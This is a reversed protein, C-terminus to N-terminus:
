GLSRTPRRRRTTGGPISADMRGGRPKRGSQKPRCASGRGCVIALAEMWNVWRVPRDAQVVPTEQDAFGWPPESQIAAVFKAFRRNTVEFKDMYFSDLVVRHIPQEDDDGEDSGMTFEGAPVLLMPAGDQGISASPLKPLATAKPVPSRNAPRRTEDAPKPPVSEPKVLVPEPKAPVHENALALGHGWSLGSLLLGILVVPVIRRAWM